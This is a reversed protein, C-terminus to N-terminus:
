SQLPCSILSVSKITDTDCSMARVVYDIIPAMKSAISGDMRVTRIITGDQEFAAQFTANNVENIKATGSSKYLVSLADRETPIEQDLLRNKHSHLLIQVVHGLQFCLEDMSITCDVKNFLDIQVEYNHGFPCENYRLRQATAKAKPVVNQVDSVNLITRRTTHRFRQLAAIIEDKVSRSVFMLPASLGPSPSLSTFYSRNKRHGEALIEKLGAQRVSYKYIIERVELSLDTFRAM